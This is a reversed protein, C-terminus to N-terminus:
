KTSSFYYQLAQGKQDMADLGKEVLRIKEDKSLRTRDNSEPSEADKLAQELRDVAASYDLRRPNAAPLGALIQRHQAISNLAPSHGNRVDDATFNLGNRIMEQARIYNSINAMIKEGEANSSPLWSRQIIAVLNDSSCSSFNGFSSTIAPVYLRNSRVIPADTIAHMRDTEHPAIAKSVVFGAM